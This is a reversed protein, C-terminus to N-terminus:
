NFNMIPTTMIFVQAPASAKDGDGSAKRGDHRANLGGKRQISRLKLSLAELEDISLRAFDKGAIRPNRCFGNIRVWDTTDVGIKQMLRLCVSRKKRLTDRLVRQREEYGTVQAMTSCMRRYESGAMEHLHATRGNTFQYVLTEKDAGPLKKLLAYFRAYNREKEM